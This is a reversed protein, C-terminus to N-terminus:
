GDMLLEIETALAGGFFIANVNWSLWILLVVVAAVSGYTAGFHAFENVYLASAWSAALSLAAAAVGGAASARWGMSRSSMAYRYILTLGLALAGSAWLWESYFWGSDRLPYLHLTTALVRLALFLASAVIVLALASVLALFAMINFGVFGLPEDEDHIFSLGAILAKFGRHAAYLGVLAALGSQASVVQMPARSLRVLEGQVLDQAAPPMLQVFTDIHQAASGPNLLLSLVGLVIAIAPFGALLAFFSVGGTYLMVDRGWLRTLSRGILRVGEVAWRAPSYSSTSIRRWDM